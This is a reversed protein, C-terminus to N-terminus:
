AMWWRLSCGEGMMAMSTHTYRPTALTTITSTGFIKDGNSRWWAACSPQAVPYHDCASLASAACQNHWNARAVLPWWIQGDQQAKAWYAVPVPFKKIKRISYEFLIWILNPKLKFQTGSHIQRLKLYESLSNSNPKCIWNFKILGKQFISMPMYIWYFNKPFESPRWFNHFKSWFEYNKNCM